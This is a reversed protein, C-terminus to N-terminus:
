NAPAFYGGTTLVASGPARPRIEVTRWGGDHKSNSSTYSLVYRRRLDEVVRRFQSALDSADSAFYAQGGSDEALEELVPRDVTPGLGVSFIAAGVERGLAMVEPLAHTSGPATGPNNEDRGDTLVVVARRGKVGKLTQFSTWLADYLATGGVPTYKEIAELTWSRNTALAHQFKAADAFTILALSDEPRVARVFDQATAKVLDASKKMSGSSDLVLVLSVPDVAEQFTDVAQAVGDEFVELDDRTVDVYRRDADLVSFEITPRIPPPDPAFYGARTRVRYGKPVSVTVERWLGDKRQNRPTYTILFRNRVDTSIEEAAKVLEQERPPTFVRGGSQTAVRRLWDGGRLSIGAVGGVGIPYVTVHAGEVANLVKDPEAKSNEDYGDTVLVIVKRSESHELLRTAELLSDLLATGGGARMQAIAQSITAVDQTPGTITGIRANFPAVIVRDKGRLGSALRAVALRLFDMRRSMSQSNDVLLVIDTPITEKTVLDITQPEGEEFVSFASEDFTTVFNGERDYVATELLVGTVETKDTVEFAPLMVSDRAVRGISDSAQVVIERAELPNADTWTVVYPPGDAVVGIRAGDVFFEVPSLTVGPPVAIQAVIRVTTVLGTRGLPSTIRLWPATPQDGPDGGQQEAARFSLQWASLLCAAICLFRRM